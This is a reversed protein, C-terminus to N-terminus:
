MSFHNHLNNIQFNPMTFAPATLFQIFCPYIALVNYWHFLKVWLM